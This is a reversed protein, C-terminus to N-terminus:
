LERKQSSRELAVHGHERDATPALHQVDRAAAVEHLMKRVDDAVLLVLVRGARERIMVHGNLGARPEPRQEAVMCRHLRMMVLSNPPDPLAKANGRMGLVSRPLGDLIGAAAERHTDEPM